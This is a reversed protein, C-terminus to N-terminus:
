RGKASKPADSHSPKLDEDLHKFVTKEWRRELTDIRENLRKIEDDHRQRMRTIDAEHKKILDEFKKASEEALKQRASQEAALNALLASVRINHVKRMVFFTTTSSAIACSVALTINEPTILSLFSLDLM